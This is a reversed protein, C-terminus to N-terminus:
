TDSQQSVKARIKAAKTKGIGDLKEIDDISKVSKLRKVKEEVEILRSHKYYKGQSFIAHWDGTAFDCRYQESLFHIDSFQKADRGLLSVDCFMNVRACEKKHDEIAKEARQHFRFMWAAHGAMMDVPKKSLVDTIEELQDVILHLLGIQLEDNPAHWIDKLTKYIKGVDKGRGRMYQAISKPTQHQSHLPLEKEESKSM